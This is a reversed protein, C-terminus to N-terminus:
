GRLALTALTVLVGWEVKLVPYGLTVEGVVPELSVKVARYGPTVRPDWNVPSVRFESWKKVESDKTELRDMVERGGKSEEKVMSEECGWKATPVENVREGLSVPSVRLFPHERGDRPDM